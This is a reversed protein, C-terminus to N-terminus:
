FYKEAWRNWTEEPLVLVLFMLPPIFISLGLAISRLKKGTM